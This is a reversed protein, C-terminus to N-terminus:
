ARSLNIRSLSVSHQPAGLEKTLFAPSRVTGEAASVALHDVALVAAAVIAVIAATRVVSFVAVRRFARVIGLKRAKPQRLRIGRAMRPVERTASAHSGSQNMPNPHLPSVVVPGLRGSIRRELSRAARTVRRPPTRGM